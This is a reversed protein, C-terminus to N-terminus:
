SDLLEITFDRYQQDDALSREILAKANDTVSELARLLTRTDDDRCEILSKRLRRLLTPIANEAERGYHVLSRAANFVVLRVDDNLAATLNEVVLQDDVGVFSGLAGAASIRVEDCADKLADSLDHLADISWDYLPLTSAAVARVEPHKYRLADRLADGIAPSPGEKSHEARNSLEWMASIRRSASGTRLEEVLVETPLDSRQQYGAASFVSDGTKQLYKGSELLAARADERLLHAWTAANEGRLQARLALVYGFIRASLYARQKAGWWAFHEPDPRPARLTENAAFIGLGFCVPLLDATWALDSLRV